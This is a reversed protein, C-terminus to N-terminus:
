RVVTVRRTVASRGSSLRVLYVGPALTGAALAAEHAGAAQVGDALVAVLRGLADIAVLRAPGAEALTYRVVAADRAPSAVSLALGGAPAEDTGTLVVGTEPMGTPDTGTVALAPGNQNAPPNLFGSIAFAFTGENGDLVFRVARLVAGTAANRVEVRYTGPALSVPPAAQAYLLDNAIVLGTEVVVVDLAPSDTVANTVVVTVNAAPRGADAPRNTGFPALVLGLSRSIGNPNQAFAFLAADPIGVLSVAFRGDPFAPATFSVQQPVGFPAPNVLRVRVALPQGSPVAIFGSAAQFIVTADPATSTEPQNFYVEIPGQRALAASEHAIQINTVAGAAADSQALAPLAGALAVLALPIARFLTSLRM